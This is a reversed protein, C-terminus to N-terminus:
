DASRPPRTFQRLCEELQSKAEKVTPEYDLEDTVEWMNLLNVLNQARRRVELNNLYYENDSKLEDMGRLIGAIFMSSFLDNKTKDDMKIEFTASGDDHEEVEKVDLVYSKEEVREVNRNKYLESVLESTEKILEEVAWLTGSLEEGSYDRTLSNSATVIISKAKYLKNDIEEFAKHDM